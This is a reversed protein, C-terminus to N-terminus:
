TVGVLHKRKGVGRNYTLVAGARWEAFKQSTFASIRVSPPRGILAGPLTERPVEFSM